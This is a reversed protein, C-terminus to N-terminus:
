IETETLLGMEALASVLPSWDKEDILALTPTLLQKIHRAAKPTAAIQEMTAESAVRLVLQRELWAETGHEQWRLLSARVQAPLPEESLEELFDLAKEVQIHQRRARELAAPTIRYQFTEDVQSLEAIRALQFREYRRGAPMAVTLDPHVTAEPLETPSLTFAKVRFTDPEPDDVDGGLEVLGLWRAPGVLLVHLLRGEV